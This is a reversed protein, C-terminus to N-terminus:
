LFLVGQYNIAGYDPTLLYVGRKPLTMCYYLTKANKELWSHQHAELAVSAYSNRGVVYRAMMGFGDLEM